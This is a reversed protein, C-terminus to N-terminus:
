DELDKASTDPVEKLSTSKPRKYGLTKEEADDSEKEKKDASSSQIDDLSLVDFSVSNGYEDKRLSVVRLKVTATIETGLEGSNDKLFEEAKDDNLYLSPYTIKPQKADVPSPPIAGPSKQKTGLDM